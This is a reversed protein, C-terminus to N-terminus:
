SEEEEQDAEERDRDEATKQDGGCLKCRLTTVRFKFQCPYCYSSGHSDEELKDRLDEDMYPAGM